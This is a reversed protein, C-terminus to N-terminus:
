YRVEYRGGESEYKVWKVTRYGANEVRLYQVQLGLALYMDLKFEMQMPPRPWTTLSDTESDIEATLEHSDEGFFKVFKWVFANQEPMFKARGGTSQVMNRVVAKPTPIRILVLTAPLKKPFRGKIRVQYYVKSGLVRVLPYVLFPLDIALRCHYLMLTFEGDPPVFQITGDSDWRPLQVCQHFKLDELVVGGAGLEAGELTVLSDNFGFRCEPMGLLHTKMTIKGDVHALLTHGDENTIAHIRESVDLFIENRRYKIGPARWSVLPVDVQPVQTKLKRTVLTKARFLSPSPVLMKNKLVSPELNTPYGFEVAEDLVENVLVFNSVIKDESLGGLVATLVQAFKYLFELIVGCDQNLRTVCCLWVGGQRIYVFSTSGLTLVPLRPGHRELLAVVQIRFVDALLRKAGDRYHKAVLVDGKADYIFLATIM